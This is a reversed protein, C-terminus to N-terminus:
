GGTGNQTGVATVTGQSGGSYQLNDPNFDPYDRAVRERFGITDEKFNLTLDIEVPDWNPHFANQTANYNTNMSTLVCLGPKYLFKDNPAFKIDFRAPPQLNTNGAVPASYYRFANIIQRVDESEQLSRPVFKWSWSHEKFGIGSFNNRLHPNIAGYFTRQAAESSVGSAAAAAAGVANQKIRSWANKLLEESLGNGLYSAFLSHLEDDSFQLTQNDALNSPTPLSITGVIREEIAETAQNKVLNIITFNLFSKMIASDANPYILKLGTPETTNDAAMHTHELNLCM